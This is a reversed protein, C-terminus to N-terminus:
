YELIENAFSVGLNKARKLHSSPDIGGLESSIVQFFINTKASKIGCYSFIGYELQKIFSEKYGHREYSEPNTAGLALIYTPRDRLRPSTGGVRVDYAWGTTFVRDFFGKMMAPLAWWYIPTVIVIADAADIRKQYDLVQESFPEENALAELDAVQFVPSFGDKYLDIVDFKIHASVEKMGEKFTNCISWTLSQHNPHSVVITVKM